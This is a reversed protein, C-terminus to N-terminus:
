GVELLEASDIFNGTARLREDVESDTFSRRRSHGQAFVLESYARRAPSRYADVMAESGSSRTASGPASLGLMLPARLRSVGRPGFRACLAAYLELDAGVKASRFPGVAGFTRRELMLSVPCLRTAKQDKFFVFSGEATVRAFNGVCAMVGPRALQAVQRAIRDPLALDDADHFTVYEGLARHALANRLNYSGQQRSSRFLRVRPERGFRDHLLPLTEDDSADDGVLIELERYSQALLSEIAYEITAASNRTAV